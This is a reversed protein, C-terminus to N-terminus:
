RDSTVPCEELTNSAMKIRLPAILLFSDNLNAGMKLEKLTLGAFHDFVSFYNKPLLWRITQTHKVM